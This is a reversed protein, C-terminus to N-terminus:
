NILSDKVGGHVSIFGRESTLTGFKMDSSPGCTPAESECATDVIWCRHFFRESHVMERLGHQTKWARGEELLDVM